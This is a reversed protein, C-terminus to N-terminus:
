YFIDVILSLVKLWIHYVNGDTVQTNFTIDNGTIIAFRCSTRFKHYDTVCFMYSLETVQFVGLNHLIHDFREKKLIRNLDKQLLM